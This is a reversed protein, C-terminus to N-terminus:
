TAYSNDLFVTSVVLPSLGHYIDCTCLINGATDRLDGPCLRRTHYWGGGAAAPLVRDNAGRLIDNAGARLLGDKRARLLDSHSSGTRLLDDDTRLVQHNDSPWLM